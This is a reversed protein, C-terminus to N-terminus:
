KSNITIYTIFFHEQKMKKAHLQGAKGAGNISFVIKERNYM